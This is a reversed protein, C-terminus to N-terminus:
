SSFDLFQCKIWENKEEETAASMRYVTHKGEVVKFLYYSLNLSRGFSQYLKLSVKGKSVTKCAKIIEAGSGAYLEFCM